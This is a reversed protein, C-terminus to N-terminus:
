SDVTELAQYYPSGKYIRLKKQIQKPTEQFLNKKDRSMAEYDDGHRELMYICFQVDRDLLTRKRGEQKKELQQREIELGGIVKAIKKSDRQKKVTGKQKAEDVDGLEMPLQDIGVRFDQKLPISKNVDFALGSDEINQVLTRKKDWVNVLQHCASRLKKKNKEAKKKKNAINGLNKTVRKIKKGGRKVSRPM